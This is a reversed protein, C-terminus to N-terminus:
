ILHAPPILPRHSPHIIKDDVQIRFRMAAHKQLGEHTCLCRLEAGTAMLDMKIKRYVVIPPYASEVFIVIPLGTADGTLTRAREVIRRLRRLASIAMHRGHLRGILASVLPNHMGMSKWSRIRRYGSRM